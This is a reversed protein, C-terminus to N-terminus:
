LFFLYKFRQIVLIDGKLTIIVNFFNNFYVKLKNINALSLLFLTKAHIIHFKVQGILTKVIISRISLMFSISFQVKV